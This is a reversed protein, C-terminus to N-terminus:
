ELEEFYTRGESPTFVTGGHPSGADEIVVVGREPGLLRYAREAVRVELGPIEENLVDDVYGALETHAIGRVYHDTAGQDFRENAHEAIAGAEPCLGGVSDNHVPLDANGAAVHYTHLGDVTPNHVRQNEATRVTVASVQAWTGASTRLWTGPELDVADVWRALEPAWFSHADTTVM